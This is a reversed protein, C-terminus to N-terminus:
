PERLARGMTPSKMDRASRLGMSLALAWKVSGLVVCQHLSRTLRRRSLTCSHFRLSSSTLSLGSRVAGTAGEAGAGCLLPLSVSMMSLVGAAGGEALEDELGGALGSRLPWDGSRSLLGPSAGLSANGAGM